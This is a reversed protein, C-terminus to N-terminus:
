ALEYGRSIMEGATFATKVSGQLRHARADHGPVTRLGCIPCARDPNVTRTGKRSGNGKPAPTAGNTLSYSFGLDRLDAVASNARGLAEDKAEGLLKGREEDIKRVRDLISNEKTAM